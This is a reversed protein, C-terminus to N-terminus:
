GGGRLVGVHQKQCSEENQSRSYRQQLDRGIWVDGDQAIRVAALRSFRVCAKLEAPVVTPGPDSRRQNQGYGRGTGLGGLRRIQNESASKTM